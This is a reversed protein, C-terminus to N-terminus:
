WFKFQDYLKASFSLLYPVSCDWVSQEANILVAVAIVANWSSLQLGFLNIQAFSLSFITVFLLANLFTLIVIRFSAGLLSLPVYRRLPRLSAGSYPKFRLARMGLDFTLILPLTAFLKFLPGAPAFPDFFMLGITGICSTLLGVPLGFILYATMWIISVPDVFAIGWGPVRPLYPATLASLVFSLGGFVASVAIDRTLVRRRNSM